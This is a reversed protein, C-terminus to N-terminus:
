NGEEIFNYKSYKLYEFLLFASMVSYNLSIIIIIYMVIADCIEILNKLLLSRFFSFEFLYIFIHFKLRDVQSKRLKTLLTPKVFSIALLLMSMDKKKLELKIDNRRLLSLPFPSSFIPKM